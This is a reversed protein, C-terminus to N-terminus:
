SLAFPLHTDWPLYGLLLIWWGPWFHGMFVWFGGLLGVGALGRMSRCLIAQADRVFAATIMLGETAVAFLSAAIALGRYNAFQLGWDFPAIVSDTIFHYEITGNMVWTPGHAPKAWAAAAYGVGFVLGPVWVSYGYRRGRGSRSHRRAALQRHQLADGWRSPLLAVLALVFAANPHTSDLSIRM